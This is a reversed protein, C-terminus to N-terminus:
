REHEQFSFYNKGGLILHDLFNIGLNECSKKIKDTFIRDANSPTLSGSPHNHAVVLGVAMNKVAHYLIERPNAPAHNAAGIFITRKEIIKNQGDLYFALLHEQEFDQMECALQMGFDHSGVVQGFRTREVMQIRKGLEIMARLEVAKAQGIGPIKKLETISARRFNELTRFSSLILASLEMVSHNKTGTRLLIALLETDSLHDAGLMELRERPKMPYPNERIEYM